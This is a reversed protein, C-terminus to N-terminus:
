YRKGTKTINQRDLSFFKKVKKSPPAERAVVRVNGLVATNQNCKQIVTSHTVIFFTCTPANGASCSCRMYTIDHRRLAIAELDM